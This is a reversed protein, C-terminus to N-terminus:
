QCTTMWLIWKQMVVAKFNNYILKRLGAKRCRLGDEKRFFIIKDWYLMM